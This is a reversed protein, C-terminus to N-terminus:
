SDLFAERTHASVLLSWAGCLDYGVAANSSLIGDNFPFPCLCPWFLYAILFRVDSHTDWDAKGPSETLANEAYASPSFM